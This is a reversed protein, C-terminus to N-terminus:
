ILLIYVLTVFIIKLHEECCSHELLSCIYYKYSFLRFRYMRMLTAAYLM